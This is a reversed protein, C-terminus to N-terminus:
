ELRLKLILPKLAKESNLKGEEYHGWPSNAVFYFTDKVITGLTPEALHPTAKELYDLSEIRGDTKSLRLRTIRFPQVGNQVAILSNKYFYLGDIGKDLFHDPMPMKEMQSPNAMEVRYLGKIYDAVYLYKGDASFCLGQLNLWEDSRKFEEIKTSGKKLLYIVPLGSDSIYINGNEAIVLDGWHHKGEDAVIFSQTIQGTELSIQVLRCNGEDKATFNEMEAIACTTAWLSKQRSSVALGSVAWLVPSTCFDSVRGNPSIRVIKRQHISSVFFSGSGPDYAVAEPHLQNDPLVFATDAAATPSALEDVLTQLQTFAAKEKVFEYDANALLQPDGNMLLTRQLYKLTNATDRRTVALGLLQKVVVPHHPRISDITQLKSFAADHNQNEIDKKAEEFLENVSQGYTQFCLFFIALALSTRM